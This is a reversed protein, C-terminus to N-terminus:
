TYLIFYLWPGGEGGFFYGSGMKIKIIKISFVLLKSKTLVYKHSCDLKLYM